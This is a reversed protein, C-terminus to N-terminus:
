HREKTVMHPLDKETCAYDESAHAKADGLLLTRAAPTFPKAFYPDEVTLQYSLANGKRTFREIVHMDNSHFSGDGDLWTEDGESLSTVDVTLTDGDIHGISDGMPLREADPDHKRGDIPVVRYINHNQYLFYVTTPTQVIETPVGIRPVGQPQCGFAPDLYNARDFNAKAKAAYAPKYEPRLATNALRRAVGAKNGQHEQIEPGAIPRTTKGEATVAAGERATPNFFGGVNTWYGSFDTLGAANKPTPLASAQEIRAQVEPNPGSAPAAALVLAAPILLSTGILTRKVRRALRHFM